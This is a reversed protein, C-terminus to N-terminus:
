VRDAWVAIGEFLSGSVNPRPQGETLVADLHIHPEVLPPTVLRGGLDLTERAEQGEAPVLVGGAVALDVPATTRPLVANRLLLDIM